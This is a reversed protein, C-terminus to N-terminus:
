KITLMLLETANRIDTNIIIENNEYVHGNSKNILIFDNNGIFTGTLDSICKVLLKEVKWVLENVPIFIDFDFDIEPVILKILVKNEM